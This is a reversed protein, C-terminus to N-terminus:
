SRSTLFCVGAAVVALCEAV